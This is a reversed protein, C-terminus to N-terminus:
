QRVARHLPVPRSIGKLAVEGVSEFRVEGDGALQRADESVLVEHPQAHDAIRAAVNVTRGFYDGEQVIVAGANIGIRAPVSIEREAQEVLELGCRIAEAPNDFHFMVGDGLWKVPRGGFAQATDHVLTALESAVEAAAMDGQEEALKTYGALDLFAIAPPQKPPRPAIDREELWAETRDVLYERLVHERHRLQLWPVLSRVLETYGAGQEYTLRDKEDNSLDFTDVRQRIARDFFQIGATVLRQVSGGYLRAFRSLDQEDVLELKRVLLALLEADDARVRDDPPPPLGLDSSLRRLLEPPRDLDRALDAYTGPAETPEPFFLGLPYELEGAAVGRAVDEVPIGADEFAAILRVVHVDSAPFAGHEPELLGLETLREVHEISCPALEALQQPTLGALRVVGPRRARRRARHAPRRDQRLDRGRRRRGATGAADRSSRPDCDV